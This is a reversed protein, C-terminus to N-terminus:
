FPLELESESNAPSSDDGATGYWQQYLQGFEDGILWSYNHHLKFSTPNPGVGKRVSGIGTRHLKDMILRATKDAYGTWRMLETITFEGLLSEKDPLSRAILLQLAKRRDDPLSSITVAILLPIDDTTVGVRGSILAHCRALSYMLTVAREVGEQVAGTSNTERRGDEGTEQWVRIDQRATTLLEALFAIADIAADGDQSKDWSVSRPLFGCHKVLSQESRLDEPAEEPIEYNTPRLQELFFDVYQKIAERALKGKDRYQLTSKIVEKCRCRRQVCPQGNGADLFLLRSGVKNMANWATQSLPTTAGLFSFLYDGVLSRQGHVGGASALGNGDFVRALTAYNEMLMEKPLSFLPGLEPIHLSKYAMRPLLDVKKIDKSKVNTAQTLFSAPTFKDLRLTMPLNKMFDLVTTKGTSPGAVFILGLPNSADELICSVQVSLAAETLRWTREDYLETITERLKQYADAIIKPQGREDVGFANSIIDQPIIGM